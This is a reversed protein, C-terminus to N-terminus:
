CEATNACDVASALQNREDPARGLRDSGARYDGRRLNWRPAQKRVQHWRGVGTVQGSAMRRWRDDLRGGSVMQRRCEAGGDAVQLGSMKDPRRWRDGLRGDDEAMKRWRCEQSERRRAAEARRQGGRGAEARRQGDRGTEAGGKGAEARRQGGRGAGRGCNRHNHASKRRQRRVAV